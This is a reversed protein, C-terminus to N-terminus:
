ANKEAKTKEKGLVKDSIYGGLKYGAISAGVFFLGKAVSPLCKLFANSSFFKDVAQKQSANLSTSLKKEIWGTVPTQVIADGVKKIKPMGVAKKALNEATFMTFLKTSERAAADLKDDSEAVKLAGAAIIVPNIYDAIFNVGKGLGKLVTGTQKTTNASVTATTAATNKINQVAGDLANVSSNVSIALAKAARAGKLVQGAAIGMNAVGFLPKEDIEEFGRTVRRASFVANSAILPISLALASVGIPSM